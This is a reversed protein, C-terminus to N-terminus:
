PTDDLSGTERALGCSVILRIASDITYPLPELDSPPFFLLLGSTPNPATPIFVAVRASAGEGLPSPFERRAVFGISRMDAHPFPVLVVERFAESEPSLIRTFLERLAAYMSRVLPVGGMVQGVAQTIFRGVMGRAIMGLFILLGVLGLIGFGPVFYPLIGAIPPFLRVLIGDVWTIAYWILWLTVVLPGLVIIGTILARQLRRLLWFVPGRRRRRHRAHRTVAEAPLNALQPPSVIGGSMIFKLGEEPTMGLRCLQSERAFLLFGTTPNPSAPLFVMTAEGTLEAIEQPAPGSVFSLGWHGPCPFEVLAVERFGQSGRSFISTFVQKSASYIKRVIPVRVLLSEGRRMIWGGLLQNALFGVGVLVVVVAILGLGPTPFPLATGKLWNPFFRAAWRDIASLLSWTVWLTIGLPAALLMGTYFYVRLRTKLRILPNITKVM